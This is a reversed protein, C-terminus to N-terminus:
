WNAQHEPKPGMSWCKDRTRKKTREQKIGDELVIHLLVERLCGVLTLRWLVSTDWSAYILLIIQSHSTYLYIAIVDEIILFKPIM